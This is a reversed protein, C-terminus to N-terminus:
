GPSPSVCWPRLVCSPWYRRQHHGVKGPKTNVATALIQGARREPWRGFPAACIGSAPQCPSGMRSMCTSYVGTRKSISWLSCERSPASVVLPSPKPTPQYSATSDGPHEPADLRGPIVLVQALDRTVHARRQEERMDAGRDPRRDLLGVAVTGGHGTATRRGSRPEDAWGPAACSRSIGWRSSTTRSAPINRESTIRSVATDIAPLGGTGARGSSSLAAVKGM